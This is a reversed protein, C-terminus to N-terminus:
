LMKGGYFTDKNEVNDFAWITSMSYKLPIREGLKGASYKEPNSACGDVKKIM